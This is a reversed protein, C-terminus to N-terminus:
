ATAKRTGFGHTEQVMSRTNLATTKEVVQLRVPFLTKPVTIWAKGFDSEERKAYRGTVTESSVPGTEPLGRQLSVGLLAPMAVPHENPAAFRGRYDIAGAQAEVHAEKRTGIRHLFAGGSKCTSEGVNVVVDARLALEKDNEHLRPIGTAFLQEALGFNRGVSNGRQELYTAQQLAGVGHAGSHECRANRLLTGSM